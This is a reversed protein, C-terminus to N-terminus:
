SASIVTDNALITIVRLHSFKKFDVTFTKPQAFRLTVGMSGCETALSLLHILGKSNKGLHTGSTYLYIVLYLSLQKKKKM